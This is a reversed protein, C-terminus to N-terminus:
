EVLHNAALKESTYDHIKFVFELPMIGLIPHVVSNHVFWWFYHRPWWTWNQTKVYWTIKRHHYRGFSTRLNFGDYDEDDEDFDDFNFM